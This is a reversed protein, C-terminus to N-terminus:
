ENNFYVYKSYLLFSNGGIKKTILIKQGAGPNFVSSDNFFIKMLRKKDYLRLIVVM